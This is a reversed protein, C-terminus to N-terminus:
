MWTENACPMTLALTIWAPEAGMASLDSLNVALAKHGISQPDTQPPFHVGEILTDVTVVIDTNAPLRLVAADDGVGRLVDERHAQSKFFQEILEFESNM